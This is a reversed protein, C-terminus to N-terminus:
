VRIEWEAELLDTEGKGSVEFTFNRGSLGVSREGYDEITRSVGDAKVTVQVARGKDFYIRKLTKVSATGLDIKGSRWECPSDYGNM